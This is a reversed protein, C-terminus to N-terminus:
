GGLVREGELVLLVGAAVFCLAALLVLVFRLRAPAIVFPQM